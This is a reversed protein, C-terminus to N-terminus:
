MLLLMTALLQRLLRNCEAVVAAEQRCAELIGQLCAASLTHSGHACRVCGLVCTSSAHTYLPMYINSCATDTKGLVPLYSLRRTPLAQVFVSRLRFSATAAPRPPEAWPGM